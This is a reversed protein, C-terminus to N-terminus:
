VAGVDDPCVSAVVEDVCVEHCARRSPELVGTGTDAVDVHKPM